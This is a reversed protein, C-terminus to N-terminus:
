HGKGAATASSVASSTAGTAGSFVSGLGFGLGTAIGGGLQGGTGQSYIPVPGAVTKCDAWDPLKTQPDYVKACNELYMFGGNTGFLSREESVKTVGYRGNGYDITSACGFSLLGLGILATLSLLRM